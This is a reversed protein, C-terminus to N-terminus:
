RGQTQSTPRPVCEAESKSLLENPMTKDHDFYKNALASPRTMNHRAERSRLVVEATLDAGASHEGQHDGSEWMPCGSWSMSTKTSPPKRVLPVAGFQPLYAGGELLDNRLEVRVLVSILQGLDGLRQCYGVGHGRRL